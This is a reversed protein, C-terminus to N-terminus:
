SETHRMAEELAELYSTRQRGRFHWGTDCFSATGLNNDRHDRFQTSVPPEESPLPGFLILEEWSELPDRRKTMGDPQTM